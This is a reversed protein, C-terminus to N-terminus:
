LPCARLEIYLSYMIFKSMLADVSCLPGNCVLEPPGGQIFIDGPEDFGTM